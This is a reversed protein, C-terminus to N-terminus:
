IKLWMELLLNSKNMMQAAIMTLQRHNLILLKCSFYNENCIIITYNIREGFLM